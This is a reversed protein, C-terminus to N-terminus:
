GILLPPARSGVPLVWPKRFNTSGIPAPEPLRGFGLDPTAPEACLAWLLTAASAQRCALCCLDDHDNNAVTSAM